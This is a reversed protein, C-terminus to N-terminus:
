QSYHEGIKTIFEDVFVQMDAIAEKVKSGLYNYGFLAPIAVVLGAVTALLAAAIGPAIANVNVDGSAAIAAFTIMVGVVTGLLGLFPGGSIAITLLVMQANLKQSERVVQADLSARIANQAEPTLAVNAGVAKGMRLKIEQIGRHYVHYINSSQYHDHHGFLAMTVPSQQLEREQEDEEHDLKAPDSAGLRKFENLFAVNDKKVRMLYLGKGVMIVWSIVSMIALIFIVVWGDTTVNKMIVPFYSEGGGASSRNEDEAYALIAGDVGQNRAAVLFVSAASGKNAIRVEDMDGVFGHTGDDAGGLYIDGSSGQFAVDLTAVSTGDVFLALKNDKITVGVHHWAAAALPVAPTAVDTQGSQYRVSLQDKNIGVQLVTADSRQTFLWADGQAAEYRVWASLSLGDAPTFRTSESAPVRLRSQGTFRAGDGILANTISEVNVPEANNKFSTADVNLTDKSFHYALVQSADFVGAPEAASTAEPNSFYMYFHDTKNNVQLRPLKVWILAMQNIQDFREVHFKLPTKDDAAIFRLDSTDPKVDFFYAFNGIHLRVLVPVDALESDVSAGSSTTDVKILKRLQWDDNWWAHALAPMILGALLVIIAIPYQLKSNM